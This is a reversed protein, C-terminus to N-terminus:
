GYIGSSRLCYLIRYRAYQSHLFATSLLRLVCKATNHNAQNRESRVVCPANPRKCMRTNGSTQAANCNYVLHLFDM